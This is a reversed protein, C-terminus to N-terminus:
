RTGRECAPCPAYTADTYPMGEMAPEGADLAMDRTVFTPPADLVVGDNECEDCDPLILHDNGSSIIFASIADVVKEADDNGSCAISAGMLVSVLARHAEDVARRAENNLRDYHEHLNPM